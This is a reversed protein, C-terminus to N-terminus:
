DVVTSVEPSFSSEQGASNYSTVAFYYKGANLNQVVYATLGPNSLRISDSYTKSAPGYHIRYGKLDVLTSGDANETPPQWSLTVSNAQAPGAVTITFAPLAVTTTGAVVAISIGSYNGVQATTPTGSLTGTKTDFTAWAPAHLISFSVNSAAVNSVQPRFTYPQGAVATTSPIGSITPASSGGVSPARNIPYVPTANVASATSGSSSSGSDGCGALEGGVLVVMSAFFVSRAARVM